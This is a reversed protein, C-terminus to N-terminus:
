QDKEVLCQKSHAIIYKSKLQSSPSQLCTFAELRKILAASMHCEDDLNIEIM